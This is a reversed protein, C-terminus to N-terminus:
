VLEALAKDMEERNPATGHWEVRDEMFSCGKGKTTAAVIVVPQRKVRRAQNLAEMIDPIHHGDVEIVHWGFARFKDSIPEPSLVESIKGDIQLGNHDVFLLLNDLKYHAAAMSAEWVMGEELEGDGVMVYVRHPKKDIKGALAMGVAWSIGQGLSGTSAEVGALKRMDPHGQLPSGLKRLTMLQETPFFGREALAAYLVPAAHGKSLVFRDRNEWDPNAPDLNMEWFYLCAVIDSASLSGGTHGSGAASLMTVIHRRIALAKEKVQLVARDNIERM